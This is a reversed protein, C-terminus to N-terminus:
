QVTYNRVWSITGAKNATYLFGNAVPVTLDTDWSHTFTSYTSYTTSWDGTATDWVFVTDGSSVPLGVIANTFSGGTPVSSGILNASSDGVLTNTYSGQLVEGVFTLTIDSTSTNQFFVGKGPALDWNIDWNHTFTSFVAYDTTFDGVTADWAQITCGSKMLSPTFINTTNNNANNLPNNVITFAGNGPLTLNVYGVVNLSYVNQAVAPVASAALAAAFLISKTRM